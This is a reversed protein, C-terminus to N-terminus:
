FHKAKLITITTRSKAAFDEVCFSIEDSEEYKTPYDACVSLFADVSKIDYRCNETKYHMPIVTAPSIADVYERAIDPEVTYFGDVPLLLVDIKGIKGVLDDSPPEGIDGMHCVRVGDIDFRFIVNKGRKKGECEDHYSSIGDISIGGIKTTGVENVLIYGKKVGELFNHDGHYHSTTVIDAEECNLRGIGVSEDFPDTLVIKGEDSILKFCSHGIRIIKM